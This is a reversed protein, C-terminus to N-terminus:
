LSDGESFTVELGDYALHVNDPLSAAVTTHDIDHAIHTFYTVKPRIRQVEDLSQSVTFHNVHPRFRLANLVLLDLDELLSYSSEPIHSCDTIYAMRGIRFGLIDSTGHRVPVPIVMHGNLTVPGNIDIINVNPVTAGPSAGKIVYRFVRRLDAATSSSAYCPLGGAVSRSLLRLDDFGMIHDAHSHTILVADISRIQARLAQLRFEPPTDIVIRLSDTQVLVSSRLRKNHPNNSTCVPCKCGIM